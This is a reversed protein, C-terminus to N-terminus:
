LKEFQSPLENVKLLYLLFSHVIATMMGLIRRNQSPSDALGLSM